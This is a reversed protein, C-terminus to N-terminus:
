FPGGTGMAPGGRSEIPYGLKGAMVEVIGSATAWWCLATLLWLVGVVCGAREVWDRAPRGRRSLLLVAWVSLIAGSAAPAAESVVKLYAFVQFPEEAVFDRWANGRLGVFSVYDALLSLGELVLTILV